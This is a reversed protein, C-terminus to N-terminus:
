LPRRHRLFRRLLLRETAYRMRVLFRSPSRTNLLPVQHPSFSVGTIRFGQWNSTFWSIFLADYLPMDQLARLHGTKLRGPVFAWDAASFWDM